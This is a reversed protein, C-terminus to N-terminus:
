AAHRALFGLVVEAVADKCLDVTIVHGCGSVWHRETPARLDALAATALGEPIRNDERSNVVLTPATVQSLALRGAQATRILARLAAPSFVGYAFSADRAAADHVSSDGRAAVYPQVLGWLGSTHATWRVLSPPLLYPALLVLARVDEAKAALQAALAGGMSLGAVAIWPERGRLEDLADHAATLYAAATVQGFDRPSRGHGPLLPAHVTYGAANLREGLYRLTQPTDGSGHLLLVARGNTGVLTFSEAGAVIGAPRTPFRKAYAREIRQRAAARWAIGLGAALPVLLWPLM